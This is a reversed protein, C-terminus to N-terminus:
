LTEYPPICPDLILVVAQYWSAFPMLRLIKESLSQMKAAKRRRTLFGAEHSFFVPYPRILRKSFAAAAICPNNTHQNTQQNLKWCGVFLGVQLVVPKRVIFTAM